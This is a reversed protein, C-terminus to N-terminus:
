AVEVSKDNAFALYRLALDSSIFDLPSMSFSLDFYKENIPISAGLFNPKGNSFIAIGSLKFSTVLSVKCPLGNIIALPNLFFNDNIM